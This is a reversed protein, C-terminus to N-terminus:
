AKRLLRVLRKARKENKSIVLRSKYTKSILAILEQQKEVTFATTREYFSDLEAALFKDISVEIIYDGIINLYYQRKPFLATSLMRYSAKAHTFEKAILRDLATDGGVTMHYERGSTLISRILIRENKTRALLFWDHPNYLYYPEHIPVTYGLISFAHSWFADTQVANKFSYSIKEGDRLNLFSYDGEGSARTKHQAITFFQLMREIWIDSLSVIGRYLVVKEDKRMRRLAAYVAQKTTNTRIKAISTILTKTSLPGNQLLDILLEEISKM